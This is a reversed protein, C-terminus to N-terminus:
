CMRLSARLIYQGFCSGSLLSASGAPVLHEAYKTLNANISLEDWVLIRSDLGKVNM